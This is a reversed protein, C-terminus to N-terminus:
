VVKVTWATILNQTTCFIYIYIMLYGIYGMLDKWCERAFERHERIINNTEKLGCYVASTLGINEVTSMLLTKMTAMMMKQPDPRGSPSPTPDGM